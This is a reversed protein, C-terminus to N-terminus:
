DKHLGYEVLENLRKPQRPQPKPPAHKLRWKSSVTHVRAKGCVHPQGTEYDEKREDRYKWVVVGCLCEVTSPVEPPPDSPCQHVLKTGVECLPKRWSEPDLYYQVREGCKHTWVPGFENFGGRRLLRDADYKASLAALKARLEDERGGLGEASPDIM